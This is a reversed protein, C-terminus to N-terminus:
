THRYEVGNMPMVGFEPGITVFEQNPNEKM